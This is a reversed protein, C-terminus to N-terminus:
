NRGKLIPSLPKYIAFAMAAVLCGKVLTFPLNFLLLCKEISDVPPFIKQYMGVIGDMGGASAFFVAAYFPYTIWLNVPFSIAASTVAGVSSGLLAGGRSKWFRYLYGAPLVFAAGLLFNALEGVGGTTTMTVNIVNKVLCVAVGYWPGLAFAALLAPLESFDMKIFSPIIAPIPFSLMMLVAAVAGLMATVAIPRYARKKM